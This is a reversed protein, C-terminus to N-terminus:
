QVRQPQVYPFRSSAQLPERVSVPIFTGLLTNSLNCELTLSLEWMNPVAGATSLAESASLTPTCAKFGADNMLVTATNQACTPMSVGPRVAPVRAVCTRVAASAYKKLEYTIYISTGGWYALACISLYVPLFVAFELAAVGRQTTRRLARSIPFTM